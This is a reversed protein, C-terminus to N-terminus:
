FLSGQPSDAPGPPAPPRVPKAPAVPAVPALTHGVAPAHAASAGAAGPADGVIVLRGDGTLFAAYVAEGPMLAQVAERYRQLQAVLAQQRQPQTASKYDLVWWGAAADNSHAARRLVLRDIRLSQGQYHLPAENIATQVLALDWAWAGEGALIAQAMRAALQAAPPAIDHDLALRAIRATPWGQVRL